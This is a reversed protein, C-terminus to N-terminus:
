KQWVGESSVIVLRPKFSTSLSSKATSQLKELLLVALLGTSLVNVQLTEEYGDSTYRQVVGSTGANEIVIDLREEKDKIAKASEVVSDFSCLDLKYVATTGTYGPVRRRLRDVAADGKTTDRVALIIRAPDM